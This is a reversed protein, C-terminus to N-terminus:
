PVFQFHFPAAVIGVVFPLLEVADQQAEGAAPLRLGAVGGDLESRFAAFGDGLQHFDLPLYVRDVVLEGGVLGFKRGLQLDGEILQVVQLFHAQEGLRAEPLQLVLVGSDELGAHARLGDQGDQPCHVQLSQAVLQDVIHLGGGALAALLSDLPQPHHLGEPLAAIAGVAAVALAGADLVHDKGHHGDQGRFQAGHHLEVAPPEGGAVQVVQIAADDVAVVPELAQHSQPGRFDDDAVFLAHELFRHVGEDVVPPAPSGDLAAVIVLELAQGVQQPALLAAEALVQQALPHVVATARDDHDARLELHVLAPQGPAHGQLQELGEDHVAQYQQADRGVDLVGLPHHFAGAALHPVDQFIDDLVARHQEVAGGGQVTEADLGEHRHQDVAVGDLNVRQDARGEVSVEVAVLHGDM